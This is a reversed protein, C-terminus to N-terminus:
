RLAKTDGGMRTTIWRDKEKKWLLKQNTTGLIHATDEEDIKRLADAIEQQILPNGKQQKGQNKEAKELEIMKRRTAEKFEAEAILM